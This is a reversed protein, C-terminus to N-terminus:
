GDYDGVEEDLDDDDFGKEDLDKLMDILHNRGLWGAAEGECDALGYAEFYRVKALDSNRGGLARMERALLDLAEIANSVAEEAATTDPMTATTM